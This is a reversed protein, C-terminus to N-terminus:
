NRTIIFVVTIAIDRSSNSDNTISFVVDTGQRIVVLPPLSQGGLSNSGAGGSGIVDFSHTETADYTSDTYANMVSEDTGVMESLANHTSIQTGPSISDFNDHIEITSEGKSHLAASYVIAAKNSDDPNEIHLNAEDGDAVDEFLESAIHVEGNLLKTLYMEELSQTM